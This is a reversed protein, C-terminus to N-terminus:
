HNRRRMTAGMVTSVVNFIWNGSMRLARHDVYIVRLAEVVKPNESGVFCGRLIDLRRSEGRPIYDKWLAFQALMYDYRQNHKARKEDVANNESSTAAYVDQLVNALSKPNSHNYAVALEEFTLSGNSDLEVEDNLLVGRLKELSLKRDQAVLAFAAWCSKAEGLSLDTKSLVAEIQSERYKKSEEMNERLKRYVIRGAFRLPAYDEYLVEFARYVAPEYYSAAIGEYIARVRPDVISEMEDRTCLIGELMERFEIELKTMKRTDAPPLRSILHEKQKEVSAYQLPQLGRFFYSQACSSTATSPAVFASCIPALLLTFIVFLKMRRRHGAQGLRIRRVSHRPFSGVIEKSCFGGMMM